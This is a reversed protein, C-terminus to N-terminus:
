FNNYNTIAKLPTLENRLQQFDTEASLGASQLVTSGVMVGMSTMLKRRSIYIREPTVESPRMKTM